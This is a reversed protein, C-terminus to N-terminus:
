KPTINEEQPEKVLAIFASVSLAFFAKKLSLCSSGFFSTNSVILNNSISTVGISDLLQSIHAGKVMFLVNSMMDIHSLCGYSFSFTLSQLYMRPTPLCAVFAATSPSNPLFVRVRFNNVCLILNKSLILDSVKVPSAFSENLSLKLAWALALGAWCVHAWWILRRKFLEFWECTQDATTSFWGAEMSALTKWSIKNFLYADPHYLWMELSLGELM